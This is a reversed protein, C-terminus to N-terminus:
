FISRMMLTGKLSLLASALLAVPFVVPATAPVSRAFVSAIQLTLLSTVGFLVVFAVCLLLAKM